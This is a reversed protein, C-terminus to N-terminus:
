EGEGRRKREEAEKQQAAKRAETEAVEKEIEEISRGTAPDQGPLRAREIAERRQDPRGKTRDISFWMAAVIAVPLLLWVTLGVRGLRFTRGGGGREAPRETGAGGSNQTRSGSM